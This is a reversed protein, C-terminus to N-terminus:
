SDARKWCGELAARFSDPTFGRSEYERALYDLVRAVVHKERATLAALLHTFREQLPEVADAAPPSLFYILPDALGFADGVDLALLLFAPLHYEFGEATLYAMFGNPDLGSAGLLSERTVDRWDRGQFFRQVEDGDPGSHRVALRDDGPHPRWAFAERIEKRLSDLETEM